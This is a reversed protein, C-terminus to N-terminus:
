SSQKCHPNQECIGDSSQTAVIGRRPQAHYVGSPNCHSVSSINIASAGPQSPAHQLTSGPLVARSQIYSAPGHSSICTDGHCYINCASTIVISIVLRLQSLLYQLCMSFCHISYVGAHCYINCACATVTTIGIPSGIMLRSILQQFCQSHSSIKMTPRLQLHVNLATTM